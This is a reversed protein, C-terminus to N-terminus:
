NFGIVDSRKKIFSRMIRLNFHLGRGRAQLVTNSRIRYVVRAEDGSEGKKKIGELTM